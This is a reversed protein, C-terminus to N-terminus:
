GVSNIVTEDYTITYKELYEDSYKASIEDILNQRSTIEWEARGLSELYMFHAGYETGIVEADGAKRGEAFCWEDFEYANEIGGALYDEYLGGSESTDVDESYEKALESFKQTTPTKQWEALLEEGKFKAAALNSYTTTTLLIHRINVSQKTNRVAPSLVFYVTTSLDTVEIYTDGAKRKSDYLWNMTDSEESFYVNESIHSEYEKLAATDTKHSTNNKIFNVLYKKFEEANKAKAAEQARTKATSGSFSYSVYSMSDIFKRNKQYYDEVEKDTPSISDDISDIQKEAMLLMETCRRIDEERVGKGYQEKLYRNFSMGEDKASEKLEAIMDDIKQTDADDLKLGNDLAAEAYILAEGIYNTALDLFYKHWTITEGTNSQLTQEKLPLTANFGLSNAYYDSM